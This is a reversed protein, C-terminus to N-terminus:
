PSSKRCPLSISFRSGVGPESFVEIHGNHNSTIITYSVSMGLGTGVGVEKTTFFPEFVRRRVIESMGPGNDEIEIIAFDGNLRTRLTICPHPPNSESIAHAANKLINLIVQEIEQITIPVMPIDTAYDKEIRIQGFDYRKRLDYDSAALELSQDLVSNLDSLEKSFDSKRSFQLMNAIIKSARAGGERISAVFGTIGRKELYARIQLLETGLEAATQQNAPIDLSIRREINQANQVIAALPNNIEHATGAALGGVMLMKESQILAEQMRIKETVDEFRIIARSVENSKVPYIQLDYFRKEFGMLVSLREKSYPEKRFMVEPILRLETDFHPLVQVVPVGKSQSLLFGCFEEAISNMLEIRQENDVVIIASPLTEIIDAFSTKLQSIQEFDHARESIDRFTGEIGAVEGNDDYYVHSNISVPVTHGDKHKLLLDDDEIFGKRSIEERIVDLFGHFVSFDGLERGVIDDPHYGLVKEISPSVLTVVGGKDERYFVDQISEFLSRYKKEASALEGMKEEIRDAMQNLTLALMGIENESSINKIRASFDGKGFERTMELVAALPSLLLGYLGLYLVICVIFIPIFAQAFEEFLIVRLKKEILEDSLYIELNGFPKGAISIPHFDYRSSVSPIDVVKVVDEVIPKRDDIKRKGAIIQGDMGKIIIALIESDKMYQSLLQDLRGKDPNDPLSSLYDAFREIRITANRRQESVLENQQYIIVAIGGVL